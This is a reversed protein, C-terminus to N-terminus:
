GVRREESRRLLDLLHEADRTDTKQERVVSARIEAAHGVWLAHGCEGLLRELWLAPFTAEIGIVAGPPWSAYFGRVEGNEHELRRTLIEGTEEEVWAVVQYRAHLDCGIFNVNM